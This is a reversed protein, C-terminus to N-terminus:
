RYPTQRRTKKAVKTFCAVDSGGGVLLRGEGLVATACGVNMVFTQSSSYSYQLLKHRTSPGYNCWDKTREPRDREGLRSICKTSRHLHYSWRKFVHCIAFCVFCSKCHASKPEGFSLKSASIADYSSYDSISPSRLGKRSIRAQLNSVLQLLPILVAKEQTQSISKM